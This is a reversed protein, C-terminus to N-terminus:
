MRCAAKGRIWSVQMFWFCKHNIEYKFWCSEGSFLTKFLGGLQVVMSRTSFAARDDPERLKDFREKLYNKQILSKSMLKGDKLDNIILSTLNM